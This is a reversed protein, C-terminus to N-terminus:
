NNPPTSCALPDVPKIPLAMHTVLWYLLSFHTRTFMLYYVWSSKSKETMKLKWKPRTVVMDLLVGRLNLRGKHENPKKKGDVLCAPM